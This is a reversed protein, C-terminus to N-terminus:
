ILASKSDPRGHPQSFGAVALAFINQMKTSLLRNTNHIPRFPDDHMM